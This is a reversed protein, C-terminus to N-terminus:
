VASFSSQQGLKETAKEERVESDQSLDCSRSAARGCKSGSTGL